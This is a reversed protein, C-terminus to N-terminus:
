IRKLILFTKSLLQLSFLIVRKINLLTKGFIAGNILYTSFYPPSLPAVFSTVIHHMRTSHKILLAIHVYACVCAWAGPYGRARM